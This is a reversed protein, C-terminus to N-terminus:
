ATGGACFLKTPLPPPGTPRDFEIVEGRRDYRGESIHSYHSPELVWDLDAKWGRENEGRLLPCDAIRKCYTRWCDANSEFSDRWRAACKAVRNANPKNAHRILGCEENWIKTMELALDANRREPSVPSDGNPSSELQHNITSPQHNAKGGQLVTTNDIANIQNSQSWRNSVNESAIASRKRAKELESVCRKQTLYGDKIDLKGLELLRALARKFIRLDDRCFARLVITSVSGGRSYILSCATIYVGREALTLDVTGAIWEDPSFDIRRVKM